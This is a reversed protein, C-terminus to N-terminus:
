EEEIEEENTVELSEVSVGAPVSAYVKDTIKEIRGGLVTTAGSIFDFSRQGEESSLNELNFAVINGKKILDTIKRTELGFSNPRIIRLGFGGTAATENSVEEEATFFKNFDIGM